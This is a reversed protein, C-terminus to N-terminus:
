WLKDTTHRTLVGGPNTSLTVFAGAGDDRSFIERFISQTSHTEVVLYETDAELRYESPVNGPLYESRALLNHEADMQATVILEPEHTVHVSVSIAVLDDGIEVNSFVTHGALWGSSGVGFGSSLYIRGSADQQVTMLNVASHAMPALYINVYTDIHVDSSGPYGLRIPDEGFNATESAFLGAWGSGSEDFESVVIYYALVDVGDFADAFSFETDQSGPTRNSYVQGTGLWGGAVVVGVVNDQRASPFTISSALTYIIISAVGFLLINKIPM